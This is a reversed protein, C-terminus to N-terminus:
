HAKQYEGYPLQVQQWYGCATPESLTSCGKSHSGDEKDLTFLVSPLVEGVTFLSIRDIIKLLDDKTKPVEKFTFTVSM